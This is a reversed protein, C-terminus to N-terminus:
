ERSADRCREMCMDLDDSPHCDAHDELAAKYGADFSRVPVSNPWTELTPYKALWAKRATVMAISLQLDRDTTM